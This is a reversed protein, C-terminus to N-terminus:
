SSPSIFTFLVSVSARSKILERIIFSQSPHTHCSYISCYLDIWISCSHLPSITMTQLLWSLSWLSSSWLHASYELIMLSRPLVATVRVGTDSSFTPSYHPIPLLTFPVWCSCSFHPLFLLYMAIMIFPKSNWM